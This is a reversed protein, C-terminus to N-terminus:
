YGRYSASPPPPLINALLTSHYLVKGSKQFRASHAATWTKKPSDLELFRRIQGCTHPACAAFYEIKFFWMSRLFKGFITCYVSFWVIYRFDYLIGFIGLFFIWFLIFFIFFIKPGWFPCIQKSRPLSFYNEKSNRKIKLLSLFLNQKLCM